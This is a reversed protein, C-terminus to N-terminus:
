SPSNVKKVRVSVRDGFGCTLVPYTETSIYDGPHIQRDSHFTIHVRISYSSRLDIEKAQLSFKVRNETGLQHSVEAIAEQAVTKASTDQYSVDELYVYVTGRDFSALEQSLIVEGKVLSPINNSSM